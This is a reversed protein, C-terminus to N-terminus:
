TESLKSRVFGLASRTLAGAMTFLNVKDPPTLTGARWRRLTEGRRIKGSSTRPLTGAEILLVEDVAVGTAALVAQHCEEAQKPHSERIEVFLLIREAGGELDAVAASCGTRVGDVEDVARELEHPAHNQGRLILVDKARGTVFLEGQWLFGLDGTDLWGDHIPSDTRDLYGTMLSPGSAWIRGIQGDPLRQDGERVEVAFDELPFGCSVLETGTSAAVAQGNRLADGDFMVARFPKGPTPFTVALAAESLGYVPLLADKRFGYREFREEFARLTGASIPEAGNLAIRWCSLDVGELDSDPIRETCLAYAFNPAPSIPARYKSITRLWLAPKALFNEPPILNLQGPHLLAPIVAGILGMDHYLPLWSVGVTRNPTELELSALLTRTIRWANATVQRHSLAVPKPDLTTGSSFQVMAIADPDPAVVSREPGEHLRECTLIGMRPRYKSITEGLIRQVRADTVIAAAKVSKLMAATKEHYEALRGLRVPPYLAVPIAGLSQCAFFLEIFEPRTPLIIAIRDGSRVGTEYLAGATRSVRAQIQEWSFWTGVEHRDIYRLGAKPDPTQAALALASILHESM